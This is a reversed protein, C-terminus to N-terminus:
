NNIIYTVTVGLPLDLGFWLGTTSVVIHIFVCLSMLEETTKWPMINISSSSTDAAVLITTSKFLYFVFHVILTVCNDFM